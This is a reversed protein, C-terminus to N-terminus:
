GFDKNASRLVYEKGLKDRLRLSKSQRGGGERFPTLGGKATDLYFNEVRIATSWEKRYHYGWFFNHYGSRKYEKGPIVVTTGKVFPSDSVIFTQSQLTNFTGPLLIAVISSCLLDLRIFHQKM